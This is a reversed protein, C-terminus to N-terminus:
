SVLALIITVARDSMSGPNARFREEGWCEGWEGDIQAEYSLVADLADRQSQTGHKEIRDVAETIDM